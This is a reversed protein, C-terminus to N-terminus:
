AARAPQPEQQSRAAQSAFYAEQEENSWLHGDSKDVCVTLGGPVHSEEILEKSPLLFVGFAPTERFLLAEDFHYRRWFESAAVQSRLFQEAIM